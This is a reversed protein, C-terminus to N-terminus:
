VNGNRLQKLVLRSCRILPQHKLRTSHWSTLCDCTIRPKSRLEPLAISMKSFWLFFGILRYSCAQRVLPIPWLSSPNSRNNRCVFAFLIENFFGKWIEFIWFIRFVRFVRFCRILPQHKLRTSHWLTLCDCTIRAKSCFEPLAESMKSFWLFFGISQYSWARRM